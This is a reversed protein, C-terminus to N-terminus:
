RIKMIKKVDNRGSEEINTVVYDIRGNKAPFKFATIFGYGRLHISLGEYPIDLDELSVNRNVKRNNRLGTVFNLGIDGTSKLTQKKLSSYWADMVVVQPNFGRNQSRKLMELCYANKTKGDKDYMRYDVLVYQEANYGM